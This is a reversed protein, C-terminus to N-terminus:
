VRTALDALVCEVLRVSLNARNFRILLAADMLLSFCLLFDSCNTPRCIFIENHLFSAMTFDIAATSRNKKLWHKRIFCKKEEETDRQQQQLSM